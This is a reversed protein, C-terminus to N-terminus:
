KELFNANRRKRVLTTGLSATFAICAICLTSPEPVAAPGSSAGVNITLSDATDGAGWSYLYTGTTLGLSAFTASNFTSSGSIFSGSTYMSPLQLLPFDQGIHTIARIGIFNGISSTALVNTKGPGFTVPGNVRYQNVFDNSLDGVGIAGRETGITDPRIRASWDAGNFLLLGLTNITGSTTALINGGSETLNITVGAQSQSTWYFITLLAIISSLQKGISKRPCRRMM